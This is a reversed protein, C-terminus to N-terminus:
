PPSRRPSTGMHRCLARRSAKMRAGTWSVPRSPSAQHSGAVPPAPRSPTVPFTVSLRLVAFPRARSASAGALRRPECHPGLWPLTHRGCYRLQLAGCPKILRQAAVNRRTILQWRLRDVCCRIALGIGPRFYAYRIAAIVPDDGSTVHPSPVPQNRRDRSTWTLGHDSVTSLGPFCHHAAFMSCCPVETGLETSKESNQTPHLRGNPWVM